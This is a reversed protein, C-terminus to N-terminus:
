KNKKLRKEKRKEDATKAPAKKTNKRSDHSKAM